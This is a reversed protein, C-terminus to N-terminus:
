RSSWGNMGKMVSSSHCTSRAWTFARRGPGVRDHRPAVRRGPGTSSAASRAKAGTRPMMSARRLMRPSIPMGKLTASPWAVGTWTATASAPRGRGAARRRPSAPTGGPWRPAAPSDVEGGGGRVRRLRGHRHPGAELHAHRQGPDDVEGGLRGADVLLQGLHVGVQRQHLLLQRVRAEHLPGRRLHDRLVAGPDLLEALRPLLQGVVAGHHRARVVLPLLVWPSSAGWREARRGRAWRRRSPPAPRRRPPRPTWSATWATWASLLLQLLLGAGATALALFATLFATAPALFARPRPRRFATLFPMASARLAAFFGALFIRWSPPRALGDLLHGLLLGGLLGLLLLQHRAEGGVGLPQHLQGELLIEEEPVGGALGGDVGRRAPAARNRALSSSTRAPVATATARRRAAPACRGSRADLVARPQGVPGPEAPGLPGDPRQQRASRVASLKRCRSEPTAVAVRRQTSASAAPPPM